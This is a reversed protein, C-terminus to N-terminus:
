RNGAAADERLVFERLLTLPGVRITERRERKVCRDEPVEYRYRRGTNYNDDQHTTPRFERLRDCRRGTFFSTETRGILRYDGQQFRFRHVYRWRWASGGLHSLVIVNRELALDDLPDGFSGGELKGFVATASAVALRFGTATGHLVLLLRPPLDDVISDIRERRDGVILVVDGREDGNLHGRVEKLLLYGAPIFAGPTPGTEPVRDVQAALPLPLGMLLLALPLRM